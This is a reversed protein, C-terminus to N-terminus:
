FSQLDLSVDSVTVAKIVILNDSSATSLHIIGTISDHLPPSRTLLM